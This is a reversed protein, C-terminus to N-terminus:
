LLLIGRDESNACLVNQPGYSCSALRNRFPDNETCRQTRHPPTEKGLRLGVEGPTLQFSGLGRQLYRFSRRRLGYYRDPRPEIM